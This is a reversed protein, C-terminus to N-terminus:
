GGLEIPAEIVCFSRAPLSVVIRDGRANEWGEDLRVQALEPGPGAGIAGETLVRIRVQGAFTADRLVIESQDLASLSRNVVTLSV